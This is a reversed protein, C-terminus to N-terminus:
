VATFAPRRAGRRLAISTLGPRFSWRRILGVLKRTDLDRNLVALATAETLYQFPLGSSLQEAERRERESAGPAGAAVFATVVQKFSPETKM